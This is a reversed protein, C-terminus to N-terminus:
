QKSKQKLFLLDPQYIGFFVQKKFIIFDISNLLGRTKIVLKGFQLRFFLTKSLNSKFWLINSLLRKQKLKMEMSVLPLITKIFVFYGIWFLFVFFTQSSFIIIDLQPM